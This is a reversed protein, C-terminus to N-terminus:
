AIRGFDRLMSDRGHECGSELGEGRLERRGVPATGVAEIVEGGIMVRAVGEADELITITFLVTRREQEV